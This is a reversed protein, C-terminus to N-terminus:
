VYLARTKHFPLWGWPTLDLLPPQSSLWDEPYVPLWQGVQHHNDDPHHLTLHPLASGVFCTGLTDCVFVRGEGCAGLTPHLPSAVRCLRWANPTPPQLGCLATECLMSGHLWWMMILFLARKFLEEMLLFLLDCTVFSGCPCLLLVWAVNFVLNECKMECGERGGFFVDFLFSGSVSIACWCEAKERKKQMKKKKKKCYASSSDSTWRSM